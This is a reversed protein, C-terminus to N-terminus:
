YLTRVFFSLLTAATGANSAGASTTHGAELSIEISKRPFFSLGLGASWGTSELEFDYDVGATLRYAWADALHDTALLGLGHRNIRRSILNALLGERAPRGGAPDAIPAVITSDISAPDTASFTALSGRYGAVIRPGQRWITQDLNLDLGAGRGLRDGGANLERVQGRAVFALDAEILWNLVLAARHQRGDIAEFALSDTARENWAAEFTLDRDKAFSLRVRGGALLGERGAGVSVDTRWRRDYTTTLTAAAEARGARTARLGPAAELTVVDRNVRLELWHRDSLHQANLAGYREVRARALRLESMTAEVRPLHERYLGDLVQRVEARLDDGLAHHRLLEQYSLMARYWDGAAYAAAALDTEYPYRRGAFQAPKLHGLVQNAGAYNRALYYGSGLFYLGQHDNPYYELFRRALRLTATADKQELYMSALVLLTQRDRPNQELIQGALSEAVKPKNLRAYLYVLQRREEIPLTQARAIVEADPLLAPAPAAPLAGSWSILLLGVRAVGVRWRLKSAKM